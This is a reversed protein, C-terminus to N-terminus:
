FYTSTTNQHSCHLIHQHKHVRPIISEEFHGEELGKELALVHGNNKPDEDLSPDEFPVVGGGKGISCFLSGGKKMLSICDRGFHIRLDSMFPSSIGFVESPYLSAKKSVLLRESPNTSGDEVSSNRGTSTVALQWSGRCRAALQATIM